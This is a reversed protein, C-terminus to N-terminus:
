PRLAKLNSNKLLWYLDNESEYTLGLARGEAFAADEAAGTYLRHM